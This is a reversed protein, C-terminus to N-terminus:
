KKRYIPVRVFRNGDFNMRRSFVGQENASENTEPSLDDVVYTFRLTQSAPVFDFQKINGLRADLMFCSSGVIDKKNDNHDSYGLFAPYYSISDSTLELVTAIRFECTNCGRGSSLCLYLSKGGAKLKHIKDVAVGKLCTPRYNNPEEEYDDKKVVKPEGKATRYHILKLFSQFSGGTNEFWAFVWFKKDTSHVISLSTNKFLSDLNYNVVAPNKLVAALVHSISDNVSTINKYALSDSFPNLTDSKALLWKVRAVQIEISDQKVQQACVFTAPILISLALLKFQM